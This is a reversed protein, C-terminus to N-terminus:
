GFPPPVTAEFCAVFLCVASGIGRYSPYLYPLYDVGLALMSSKSTNSAIMDSEAYQKWKRGREDSAVDENEESGDCSANSM